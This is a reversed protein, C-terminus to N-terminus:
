AYRQSYLYVVFGIVVLSAYSIARDLLAISLAVSQTAGFLSFLLVMSAEVYGLGGPTGPPASLFSGALAIFGVMALNLALNTSLTLGVSQTVLFLRGCEVFWALITMGLVQPYAGFSGLVGDRFHIYVHAFRAPVLRRLFPDVRRLALLGVAAVAAAGFGIEIALLVWPPLVGRFSLLGFAGLFILVVLLDILREAVITGGAKSFSVPSRQRLLYARYVDGLKAPVVCNAFFALYVIETLSAISPLDRVPTGTNRLLRQWRTGRIPFTCYYLLFAAILLIPNAARMQLWTAGPDVHLRNMSFGLILAGVAFSIITRPRFVRQGLAPAESPAQVSGAAAAEAMKEGTEGSKDDIM